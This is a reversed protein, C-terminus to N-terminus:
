KFHAIIGRPSLLIMQEGFVDDIHPSICSIIKDDVVANDGTKVQANHALAILKDKDMRVRGILPLLCEIAEQVLATFNPAILLEALCQGVAVDEADTIFIAREDREGKVISGACRM